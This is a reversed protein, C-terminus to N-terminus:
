KKIYSLIQRCCSVLVRDKNENKSSIIKDVESMFKAHYVNYMNICSQDQPNLAYQELWYSFDKLISGSSKIARLGRSIFNSKKFFSKKRPTKQLTSISKDVFMQMYSKITSSVDLNTVPSVSDLLVNMQDCFLKTSHDSDSLLSKRLDVQVDFEAAKQAKFQKISDKDVCLTAQTRKLTHLDARLSKLTLEASIGRFCMNKASSILEALQSSGVAFFTVFNSLPLKRGNSLVVLIAQNDYEFDQIEATVHDLNLDSTKEFRSEVEQKKSFFSSIRAGISASQPNNQKEMREYILKRDQETLRRASYIVSGSPSIIPEVSNGFYNLRFKKKPQNSVVSKDGTFMKLAVESVEPTPLRLIDAQFATLNERFVEKVEARVKDSGYSFVQSMDYPNDINTPKVARTEFKQRYVSSLPRRSFNVPPMTSSEIAALEMQGLVPAQVNSDFDIPLVDLSSESPIALHPDFDLDSSFFDQLASLDYPVPTSDHRPSLMSM